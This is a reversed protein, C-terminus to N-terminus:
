VQMHSQDNGGGIATSNQLPPENFRVTQASGHLVQQGHVREAELCDIRQQMEDKEKQMEEREWQHDAVYNPDLMAEYQQKSMPGSGLLCQLGALGAMAASNPLDWFTLQFIAPSPNLCLGAAGSLGNANQGSQDTPLMHVTSQNVHDSPLTAGSAASSAAAIHVGFNNQFETQLHSCEQGVTKLLETLRPVEAPNAVSDQM